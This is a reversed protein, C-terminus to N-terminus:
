HEEINEDCLVCQDFSIDKVSSKIFTDKKWEYIRFDTILNKGEHWDWTLTLYEWVISIESVHNQM